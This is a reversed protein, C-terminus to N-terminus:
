AGIILRKCAYERGPLITKPTTHNKSKKLLFSKPAWGRIPDEVTIMTLTSLCLNKQLFKSTAVRTELLAASSRM